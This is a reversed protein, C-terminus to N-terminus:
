SEGKELICGQNSVYFLVALGDSWIHYVQTMIIYLLYPQTYNLATHLLTSGYNLVGLGSVIINEKVPTMHRGYLQSETRM